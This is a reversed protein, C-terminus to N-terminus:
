VLIHMVRLYLGHRSEDIARRCCGATGVSWSCQLICSVVGHQWCAKLQFEGEILYLRTHM